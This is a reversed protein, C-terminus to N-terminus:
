KERLKDEIEKKTKVYFLYLRKNVKQKNKPTLHKFYKEFTGSTNKRFDKMFTKFSVFENELYDKYFDKERNDKKYGELDWYFIDEWSEVAQQYYANFELSHNVYKSLGGTKLLKNTGTMSRFTKKNKFRQSDLYHIFEHIFTEEIWGTHDQRLQRLAVKMNPFFIEIVATDDEPNDKDWWISGLYWKKKNKSPLLQLFLLPYKNDIDEIKLEKADPYYDWKKLPASIIKNWLDLAEQRFKADQAAGEIIKFRM